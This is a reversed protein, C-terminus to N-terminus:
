EKDDYLIEAVKSGPFLSLVKKIDPQEAAEALANAISQAEIVALTPKRRDDSPVVMFSQGSHQKLAKSLRNFFGERIGDSVALEIHGKKFLVPHAYEYIEGQVDIDLSQSRINGLIVLSLILVPITKKFSLSM